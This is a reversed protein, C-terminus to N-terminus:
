HSENSGSHPIIGKKHLLTAAVRSGTQLWSEYLKLLDQESRTQSHASVESLVEVWAGFKNALEGYLEQVQARTVLSSLSGYASGGMQIYYNLDILKRSLSEPFYGAFYLSIDGLRQLLIIRAERDAELARELLKFLAEEELRNGAERYVLETKSFRALLHVLYFETEPRAQIQQNCMAEHVHTYFYEQLNSVTDISEM